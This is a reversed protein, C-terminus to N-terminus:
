VTEDKGSCRNGNKIRNKSVFSAVVVQMGNLTMSLDIIVLRGAM